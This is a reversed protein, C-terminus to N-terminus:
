APLITWAIKMGMHGRIHRPLPTDSHARFRVLVYAMVAWVLMLIALTMWFIM